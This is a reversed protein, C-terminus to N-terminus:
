KLYEVAALAAASGDAVATTLQRVTKRRCDGAAFIGPCSTCCNEGALIYGNEDLSVLNEFIKNEPVQGIAEFLVDAPIEFTEGTKLNQLSLARLQQAGSFGVIVTDTYITINPKQQLVSLLSAEGRFSARRHILFVSACLESLYLAEQLASNGGGVVAAIKGKYLPGDCIACFSIGRGFYASENTIGLTRHQVGTALIVTKCPLINNETCVEFCGDKKQVGTVRTVDIDVGLDTIQSLLADAFDSGSLHPMGPYNEINPSSAIQGGFSDSELLLVRKGSRLLYLAATMGAPGAGIIITDHM